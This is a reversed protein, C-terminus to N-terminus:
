AIKGTSAADADPSKDPSNDAASEEARADNAPTDTAPTGHVPGEAETSAAEASATDSADASAADAEAPPTEDEVAKEVTEKVKKEEEKIEKEAKKVEKDFTEKVDSSVRKFEAMGKGLTRMLDPLKKPGIVILAVVIIIFLETSGIGFM